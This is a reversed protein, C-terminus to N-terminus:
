LAVTGGIEIPLSQSYALVIMTSNLMVLTDIYIIDLM